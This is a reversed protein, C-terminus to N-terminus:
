KIAQPTSNVMWTAFVESISWIGTTYVLHRAIVYDLFKKLQEDTAKEMSDFLRKGDFLGGKILQDQGDNQKKMERAVYHIDDLLTQMLAQETKEDLFMAKPFNYVSDGSATKLYVSQRILEYIRGKFKAPYYLETHILDGAQPARANKWAKMSFYFYNGKILRCKGSGLVLSTDKENKKNNILVGVQEKPINFGDPLLVQVIKVSDNIATIYDTIPLSFIDERPKGDLQAKGTSLIGLLIVSLIFRKM